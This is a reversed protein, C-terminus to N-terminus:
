WRVAIEDRGLGDALDLHVFARKGCEHAISIMDPLTLISGGLLFIAAADTQSARKVGDLTRAAPIVPNKQFQRILDQM